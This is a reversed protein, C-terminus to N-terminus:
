QQKFTESINAPNEVYVSFVLAIILTILNM